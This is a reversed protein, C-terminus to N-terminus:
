LVRYEASYIRSVKVGTLMGDLAPDDGCCMAVLVLTLVLVLVLVLGLVLVLVPVGNLAWSSDDGPGGAVRRLAM